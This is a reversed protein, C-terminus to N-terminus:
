TRAKVIATVQDTADKMAQAPTKEKRIAKQVEVGLAATVEIYDPTVFSDYPFSAQELVVGANPAAKQVEPDALASMRIPLWGTQLLQQKQVDPSLYFEILSAAADPNKSAKVLTWADTGDISATGAPGAPLVASALSGSISSTAPDSAPKWMFPWNMMMAAKGATFVNTTDAIGVYAISGPETGADWLDVLFQTAQVGADDGFVPMGSADWMTGGAQQLYAMFINATGGIGEPTGYNNVWGYQGGGTLERTYGLLEDWTKPPTKLGAKEFMATNYFLTMLSLTFVVGQIQNNWTVTKFSSKPLDAILDKPLMSGLDALNKSFEPVWGSMYAVDWPPNGSAFATALKDHMQTYPIAEYAVSANNETQWAKLADLSFQAAGPPAPDPPQNSLVSLAIPGTVSTSTASGGCAQLIAPLAGLAIAGLGLGAGQKLLTRRSLSRPTALSRDNM